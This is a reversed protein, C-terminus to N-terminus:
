VGTLITKTSLAELLLRSGESIERNYYCIIPLSYLSKTFRILSLAEEFSEETINHIHLSKTAPYGVWDKIEGVNLPGAKRGRQVKHTVYIINIQGDDYYNAIARM